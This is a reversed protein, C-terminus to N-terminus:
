HCSSLQSPLPPFIRLQMGDLGFGSHLMPTSVNYKLSSRCLPRSLHDTILLPYILGYITLNPSFAEKEIHSSRGSHCHDWACQWAIFSHSQLFGKLTRCHGLWDGSRLGISFRHLSNFTQTQIVARSFIQMPSHALIGAVTHAFRTFVWLFHKVETM